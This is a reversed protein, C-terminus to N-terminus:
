LNISSKGGKTLIINTTNKGEQLNKFYQAGFMLIDKPKSRLVEKAFDHIIEPFGNPTVYKELYKSAM